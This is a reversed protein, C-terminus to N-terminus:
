KTDEHYPTGYSELLDKEDQYPIEEGTHLDWARKLEPYLWEQPNECNKWNVPKVCNMVVTNWFSTLYLVMAFFTDM